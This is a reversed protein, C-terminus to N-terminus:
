STLFTSLEPKKCKRLDVNYNYGITNNSSNLSDTIESTKRDNNMNSLSYNRFSNKIKNSNLHLKNIQDEEFSLNSPITQELSTLLEINNNKHISEIILQHDCPDIINNFQSLIMEHNDIMPINSNTIFKLHSTSNDHLQKSQNIPFNNQNNTFNHIQKFSEDTITENNTISLKNSQSHSLKRYKKRIIIFLVVGIILGIIIGIFGSFLLKWINQLPYLLGTSFTGKAVLDVPVKYLDLKRLRDSNESNEPNELEADNSEGCDKHFGTLINSLGESNTDCKKLIKNWYCDPDKLSTCRALLHWIARFNPDLTKQQSGGVVM